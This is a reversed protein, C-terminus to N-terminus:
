TTSTNTTTTSPELPAALLARVSALATSSSPSATSTKATSPLPTQTRYFPETLQHCKNLEYVSYKCTGTSNAGTCLLVGGIARKEVPSASVAVASSVIAAVTSYKM